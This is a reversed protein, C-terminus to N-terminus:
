SRKRLDLEAMIKWILNPLERKMVNEVATAIHNADGSSTSAESLRSSVSFTSEGGVAASLARAIELEAEHGLQAPPATAPAASASAAMAMPEPEAETQELLHSHDVPLGSFADRMQQIVADDTEPAPAEIPVVNSKPPTPTFSSSVANVDEAHIESAGESVGATPEIEPIAHASSSEFSVSATHERELEAENWARSAETSLQPKPSFELPAANPAEMPLEFASGSPSLESSLESGSLEPAPSSPETETASFISEGSPENFASM